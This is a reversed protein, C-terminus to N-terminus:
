LMSIDVHVYQIYKILQVLASFVSQPLETLIQPLYPSHCYSCYGNCVWILRDTIHALANAGANHDSRCGPNASVHVDHLAATLRLAAANPGLGLQEETFRDIASELQRGARSLWSGVIRGPGLIGTVTSNTDSQIPIIQFGRATLRQIVSSRFSGTRTSSM